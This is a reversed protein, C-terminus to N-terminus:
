STEFASATFVRPDSLLQVPRPPLLMRALRRSVAFGGAVVHSEIPSGDPIDIIVSCDGSDRHIDSLLGDILSDDIWGGLCQGPWLDIRRQWDPILQNWGAQTSLRLAQPLDDSRLPQIRLQSM